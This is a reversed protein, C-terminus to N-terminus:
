HEFIYPSEHLGSIPLQRQLSASLNGSLSHNITCIVALVYCTAMICTDVTHGVEGKTSPIPLPKVVYVRGWVTDISVVGLPM